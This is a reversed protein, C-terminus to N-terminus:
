QDDMKGRNINNMRDSAIFHAGKGSLVQLM